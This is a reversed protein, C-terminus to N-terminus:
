ALDGPVTSVAKDLKAEAKLARDQWNRALAISERVANIMRNTQDIALDTRKLSEIVIKLCEATVSTEEASM